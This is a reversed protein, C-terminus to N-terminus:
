FKFSLGYRINTNDKSPTYFDYKGVTYEAFFGTHRWLYFAIGGGIGYEKQHLKHYPFYRGGFKGTIYLDFRFNDAKLLFPLIHFNTNIGYSPSFEEVMVGTGGSHQYHKFKTFGLYAGIELYKTIGYNAELRWHGNKQVKHNIRNGNVYDSYGIKVNWRNKIYDSKQGLANYYSTFLVIAICCYRQLSRNIKM